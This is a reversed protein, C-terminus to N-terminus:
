WSGGGGGGGGGGSGGGGSFGSGGSGSSSPSSALTSSVSSSFGRLGSSFAAVQFPGLGSYWGATSAQAENELGKFANAWKDVCGFVIAYPLYKAFANLINQQENFDQIRTEATAVYQRFGLVRRLAESGAPTRRSMGQSVFLMVIGAIVVGVGLLGRGLAFASGVCILVGLVIMGIGAGLWMGKATGPRVPFWQQQMGDDYLQDKVSDLKTYFRNKLDSMEVEDGAAFLGNLLTREYKMVGDDADKLKTLKWDTSGFWGEKPIETIHIYGRVALDVITATVDLTDAREDLILGMQAPRLDNPPTYEVVVDDDDGFVPRTESAPDDTLYYISTYRRDRGKAWWLGAVTGIGALGLLGAGGFEVADLEFYDDISPRDRLIPPPVEVVGKQWGAVITLEEGQFLERTASYAARDGEVTSQCLANSFSAGQYCTVRLDAGAPLELSVNVEEMVVPWLNGTADWYLEDHDAYADLAGEVTYQIRYEQQGSIFVDADGIRIRSAHVGTGEADEVSYPHPNGSFDTVGAVEIRYVRDHSVPCPYVPQEAGQIAEACPIRDYLDRFIGRKQLEFFDVHIDETVELLGDERVRYAINFSLISWGEATRQANERPTGIDITPGPQTTPQRTPLQGGPEPTEGGEQASEVVDTTNVVVSIVSGALSAVIGLVVVVIVLPRV